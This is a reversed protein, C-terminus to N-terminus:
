LEFPFLTKMDTKSQPDTVCIVSRSSDDSYCFYDKKYGDGPNHYYISLSDKESPTGTPLDEDFPLVEAAESEIRGLIPKSCIAKRKFFILFCNYTQTQGNVQVSVPVKHHLFQPSATSTTGTINSNNSYKM